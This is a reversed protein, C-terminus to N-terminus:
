IRVGGGVGRGGMYVPGPPWYVYMYSKSLSLLQQWWADTAVSERRWAM